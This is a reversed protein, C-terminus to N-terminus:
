KLRNLLEESKVLFDKSLQHHPDIQICKEFQEKAKAFEELRYYCEGISFEALLSGPNIQLSLQFDTIADSWRELDMKCFARNDIAEYFTPVLNIAMTYHNIADEFKGEDTLEHAMRYYHTAKQMAAEFDSDNDRQYEYYGILEDDTVPSNILFVADQFSEQHVPAHYISVELQHLSILTPEEDVAKYCLVHFTEEAEDKKLLKYVHYIEDYHIFFVDGEEFAHNM